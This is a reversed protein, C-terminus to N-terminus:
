AGAQRDGRKKAFAIGAPADVLFCGFLKLTALL